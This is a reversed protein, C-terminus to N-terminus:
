PLLPSPALMPVLIEVNARARSLAVYALRRGREEAFHSASFNAVLVHDYELGKAKHITGVSRTPQAPSLKHASVAADLAELADHVGLPRIRGLIRLCEPQRVQLWEPSHRMIGEVTACFGALDPSAYVPAFAMIFPVLARNRGTEIGRETLARNLSARRAATLGIALTSLLDLIIACLDRPRGIAEIARELASYAEEFEAGENFVLRRRGCSYLGAPLRRTAALVSITGRRHQDLFSQLPRMLYRPDGMGFGADPMGSVRNVRVCRPRERLPLPDGAKLARRAHLIWEGLDPAQSWRQPTDLVVREDAEQELQEWPVADGADYIAQMPDGFIRLRAQGVEALLRMVQHQDRRADQHEDAIIIPHRAAVMRALSPSRSLLEVAKGALTDFPVRGSGSGVGRRLDAPLGLASAYPSLLDLCFADITTARVSARAERTRAHFEQVAANTHALVLIECGPSLTPALDAALAAAEHTKGCGAPAETLIVPAPSRLIQRVRALTM